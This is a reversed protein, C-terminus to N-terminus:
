PGLWSMPVGSPPAACAVEEVSVFRAPVSIVASASPSQPSAAGAHQPLPPPHFVCALATTPAMNGGRVTLDGATALPM